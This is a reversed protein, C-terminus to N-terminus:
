PQRTPASSLPSEAPPTLPLTVNVQTNQGRAVRGHRLLRLPDGQGARLGGPDVVLAAPTFGTWGSQVPNTAGIKGAPSIVSHNLDETNSGTPHSWVVHLVGNGTRALAVQDTSGGDPTTVRKWPAAQASPAAAAAALLVAVAVARVKM